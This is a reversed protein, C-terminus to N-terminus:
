GLQSKMLENPEISWKQLALTGSEEEKHKNNAMDKSKYYDEFSKVKEKNLKM